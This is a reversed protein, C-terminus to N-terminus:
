ATLGRRSLEEQYVRGARDIQDFLGCFVLRLNLAQVEDDSLVELHTRWGAEFDENFIDRQLVNTAQLNLNAPVLVRWRHMPVPPEPKAPEEEHMDLYCPIGAAQLAARANDADPANTAGARVIASFVEMGEELWDPEGEEPSFEYGYEVDSDLDLVQAGEGAAAVARSHVQRRGVEAEFCERAVDVLDDGNIDLLAEDSLSAYHRRLYEPDVPM